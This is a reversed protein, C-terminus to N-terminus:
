LKSNKHVHLFLADLAEPHENYIAYTIDKVQKPQICKTALFKSYNSLLFLAEHDTVPSVTTLEELVNSLTACQNSDLTLTIQEQSNPTTLAISCGFVNEAPKIQLATELSALAPPLIAIQDSQLTTIWKASFDNGLEHSGKQDCLWTLMHLHIQLDTKLGMISFISSKSEQTIPQINLDLAVALKHLAQYQAQTDIKTSTNQLPTAVDVSVTSLEIIPTVTSPELLVTADEEQAGSVNHGIPPPSQTSPFNDTHDLEDTADYNEYLHILDASLDESDIAQSQPTSILEAVKEPFSTVPIFLPTDNHDKLFDVACHNGTLNETVTALALTTPKEQASNSVLVQDGESLQQITTYTHRKEPTLYFQASVEQDTSPTHWGASLSERRIAELPAQVYYLKM